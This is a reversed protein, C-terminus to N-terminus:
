TVAILVQWKCFFFEFAPVDIDWFRSHAAGFIDFDFETWGDQQTVDDLVGVWTTALRNAFLSARLVIVKNFQQSWSESTIRLPAFVRKGEEHGALAQQLGNALSDFTGM